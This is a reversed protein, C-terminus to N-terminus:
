NDTIIEAEQSVGKDYPKLKKRKRAVTEEEAVTVIGHLEKTSTDFLGDFGGEEM